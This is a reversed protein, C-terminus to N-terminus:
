TEAAQGKPLFGLLSLTGWSRGSRNLVSVYNAGGPIQVGFVKARLRTVTDVSSHRKKGLTKLLEFVNFPFPM